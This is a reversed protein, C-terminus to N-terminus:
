FLLYSLYLVAYVFYLPYAALLITQLTAWISGRRAREATHPLQRNGNRRPRFLRVLVLVINILLALILCLYMTLGPISVSPSVIGLYAEAAGIVASYIIWFVCVAQWFCSWLMKRTCRRLLEQMTDKDTHLEPANEDTSRYVEALGFYDNCYEWGMDRYLAFRAADNRDCDGKRRIDVEYRAPAAKREFLCFNGWQARFQLGNRSMESLWQSVALTEFCEYPAPRWARKKM